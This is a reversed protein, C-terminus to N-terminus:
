QKTRETTPLLKNLQEQTLLKKLKNNKEEILVDIKTRMEQPALKKSEAVKSANTKYDAMIAEVQIAVANTINLQKSLELKQSQKPGETQAKAFLGTLMITLTTILIKKM